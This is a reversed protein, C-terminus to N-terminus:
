LYKKPNGWNIPYRAVLNWPLRTDYVHHYITAEHALTTLQCDEQQRHNYHRHYHSHYCHQNPPTFIWCTAIVTAGHIRRRSDCLQHSPDVSVRWYQHLPIWLRTVLLQRYILLLTNALKHLSTLLSCAPSQRFDTSQTTRSLSWDSEDFLWM